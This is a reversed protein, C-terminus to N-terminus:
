EYQLPNFHKWSCPRLFRSQRVGFMVASHYRLLGM